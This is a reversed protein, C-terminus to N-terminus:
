TNWLKGLTVQTEPSCVVRQGDTGHPLEEVRHTHTPVLSGELLSWSTQLGTRFSRSLFTGPFRFTSWDPTYYAVLFLHMAELFDGPVRRFPDELVKVCPPTSRTEGESLRTPKKESHGFATRERVSPGPLCSTTQIESWSNPCHQSAMIWGSKSPVVADWARKTCYCEEVGFLASRLANCFAEDEDAESPTVAKVPTVDVVVSGSVM